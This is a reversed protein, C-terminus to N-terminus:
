RKHSQFLVEPSIQPSQWLPIPGVSFYCNSIWGRAEFPKQTQPHVSFTFNTWLRRVVTSLGSFQIEPIIRKEFMYLFLFYTYGCNCWYGFLNYSVTLSLQKRLPNLKSYILDFYVTKVMFIILKILRNGSSAEQM